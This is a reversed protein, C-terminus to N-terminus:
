GKGLGARTGDHLGRRQQWRIRAAHLFEGLRGTRHCYGLDRRADNAWGIVVQRLFGPPQHHPRAQALTAQALAKGDGFARRYAQAPTYNHSHMVISGPVYTIRYGESRCWRTFEDDEAYQLDERFGRQSWVSKRIGSSVLSFFHDWSASERNEGFCREYDFAFVAECDPRPIQRGFVAAVGPENLAAVLAGLWRPDQPTADANLFVCLETDALAMGQNLVKGPVYTGLPIEIFHDPGFSRILDQSGDSSGSDIVILRWNRHEQTRLATLTDHLAWAENFSRLIITVPEQHPTEKM